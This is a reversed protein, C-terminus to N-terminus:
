RFEEKARRVQELEREIELLRRGSNESGSKQLTRRVNEYAAEERALYKKLCPHRMALLRPGYKYEIDTLEEMYGHLVRMMPYFKGDELVMDEEHILYGERQLFRRVQELDSQPQLILERVTKLAKRGETLIHIVLWGGMGAVVVSDAEGEGLAKVGDSLRTQIRDELGYRAINEQARLLPGQNIDMAIAEPVRGDMVLSLPIYGHDTGVDALRSGSTVMQSVAQLRKSLQM